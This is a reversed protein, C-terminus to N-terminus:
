QKPKSLDRLQLGPIWKFDQANFTWLELDGVLASAGIISDGLSMKRMQRLYIAKNVIEPALDMIRCENLVQQVSSAESVSMKHYGLSEIATISTFYPRSTFLHDLSQDRALALVVNTDILVGM